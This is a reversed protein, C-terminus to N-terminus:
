RAAAPRILRRVTARRADAGDDEDDTEARGRGARRDARPAGRRPRGDREVAKRVDEIQNAASTLQSKIRRVDEMAVTAREVEARLASADLGDAGGKAMLVRARALSYAVELALRSGEEPDYVSSCSTATSRACPPRAPRAAQRRDPRGLRRLRRRAPDDGRRARRAGGQALRALEQGRVRDPRAPPRLLRRHGGGRRGQPRRRRAPRRGRRLRRGPRRRDRRRAEFVAEEYPRGKATSRDHEAAVEIAKEKEAQLKQIQLQMEAMRGSMERLHAHQQDSSQRIAAM